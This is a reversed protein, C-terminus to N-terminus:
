LNNINTSDIDTSCPFVATLYSVFEEAAQQDTFRYEAIQPSGWYGTGDTQEAATMAQLKQQLNTTCSEPLDSKIMTWVLVVSKTLTM